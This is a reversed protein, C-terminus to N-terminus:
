WYTRRKHNRFTSNDWYGETFTDRRDINRLYDETQDNLIRLLAVEQTMDFENAMAARNAAFEYIFDDIALPFPSEDELTLLKFDPVVTIEYSYEKDPLPYFNITNLGTLYYGSPQGHRNGLGDIRCPVLLKDDVIVKIIKTIFIDEITVNTAGEELNGMFTPAALLEPRIALHTRWLVRCADNIYGLLVEDTYGVKQEDHITTRVKDIIESVKMM